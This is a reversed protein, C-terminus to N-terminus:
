LLNKKKKHCFFPSPPPSFANTRDGPSRTAFSFSGCLIYQNKASKYSRATDICEFPRWAERKGKSDLLLSFCCSKGSSFSFRLFFLPSIFQSTPSQLYRLKKRRIYFFEGSGGVAKVRPCRSTTTGAQRGWLFGRMELCQLGPKFIEKGPLPQVWLLGVRPQQCTITVVKLM